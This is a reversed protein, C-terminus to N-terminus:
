FGFRHVDSVVDFPTDDESKSPFIEGYRDFFLFGHRLMTRQKRLENIMFQSDNM